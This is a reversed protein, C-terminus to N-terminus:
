KKRQRKKEMVNQQLRLLRAPNHRYIATTSATSAAAPSQSKKEQQVGQNRDHQEIAQQTLRPSAAVVSESEVPPPSRTKRHQLKYREATAECDHASHYNEGSAHCVECIQTTCTSAHHDRSVEPTEPHYCRFCHKRPVAYQISCKLPQKSM